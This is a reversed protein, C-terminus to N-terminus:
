LKCTSAELHHAFLRGVAYTIAGAVTVAVIGAGPFFRNIQHTSFQTIWGTHAGGLVSSFLVKLKHNWVSDGFEHCQDAMMETLVGSVAIQSVVPVPIFGLGVSMVVCRHVTKLSPKDWEKQLKVPFGSVQQRVERNWNSAESSVVKEIM